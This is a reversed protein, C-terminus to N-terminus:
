RFAFLMFLPLNTTQNEHKDYVTVRIKLDHDFYRTYLMM